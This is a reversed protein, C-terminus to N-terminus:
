TKFVQCVQCMMCIKNYKINEVIQQCILRYETRADSGGKKALPSFFVLIMNQTHETFIYVEHKRKDCIM